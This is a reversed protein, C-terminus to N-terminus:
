EKDYVAKGNFKKGDAGTGNLTVTRSKGDAAVTITGSWVMKGDKMATIDNTRDNVVKYAASTWSLNGKTPYAKGDWKGVWVSHTPKGDKDVGDVTVKIKDKQEAYTVTTNKGMGPVLKSKAENLKWTGMQPSVAFCAAAAVFTLAVAVVAIRSKM